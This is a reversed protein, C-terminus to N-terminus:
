IFNLNKQHRKNNKQWKVLIIGLTSPITDHPIVLRNGALKCQGKKRAEFRRLGSLGAIDYFGNHTAM